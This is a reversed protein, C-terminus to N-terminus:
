WMQAHTPVDWCACAQLNEASSGQVQHNQYLVTSDLHYQALAERAIVFQRHLWWRSEDGLARERERFLM